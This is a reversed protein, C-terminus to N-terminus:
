VCLEVSSVVRLVACVCVCVCVCVCACVCLVGHGAVLGGVAALLLEPLVQLLAADDIREGLTRGDGHWWAVGHMDISLTM